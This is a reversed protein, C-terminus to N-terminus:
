ISRLDVYKGLSEYEGKRRLLIFSASDYFCWRRSFFSNLAIFLKQFLRIDDRNLKDTMNDVIIDVLQDPMLYKDFSWSSANGSWIVTGFHLLKIFSNKLAYDAIKSIQSENMGKAIRVNLGTPVNLQRLNDLARIKHPLYNNSRFSEETKVDFGDLTLNIADIGAKKLKRLYSLEAIKLGNTNIVVRRGMKKIMKIIESLDERCTPEGGSLVILAVKNKLLFQRIEDLSPDKFSLMEKRLGTGWSCIPCDMNCRFTIDIEVGRYKLNDRMVSFYFSELGKYSCANESLVISILGHEPCHKELFVKGEREIVAAKIRRWCKPCCSETERILQEM